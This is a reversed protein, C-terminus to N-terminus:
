QKSSWEDIDRIFYEVTKKDCDLSFLAYPATTQYLYNKNGIPKVFDLILSKQKDLHEGYWKIWPFRNLVYDPYSSYTDGTKLRRYDSGYWQTMLPGFTKTEDTYKKYHKAREERMDKMRPLFSLCKQRTTEIRKAMKAAAIAAEDKDKAQQLQRRKKEEEKRKLELKITKLCREYAQKAAYSTPKSAAREECIKREEDTPGWWFAHSTTPIFIFLSLSLFVLKKM